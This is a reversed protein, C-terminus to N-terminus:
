RDGDCEARGVVAAVNDEKLSPLGMEKRVRNADDPTIHYIYVSYGIMTVPIFKQFWSFDYGPIHSPEIWGGRGDSASLPDGGLLFCVDIAYWGPLPGCSAVPLETHREKGNPGLAPTTFKIGTLRPDFPGCHALHLPTAEPHSDLWRKLLILDQGWSSDSKALIKWGNKPGGVLENFYSIEHPFYYMSSGVSWFLGIMVVVRSIKERALTIGVKSTWVFLFPLLPMCYRSHMGIGTQTSLITFLTLVPLLLYLENWWGSRYKANRFTLFTAFVILIWTGLPIKVLMALGHFYWWGGIQWTGLLYSFVGTEFDKKQLDLGAVFNAPLPVPIKALWTESFRNAGGDPIEDPSPIGTLTRTQFRFEGLPTGTGEFEYGANIVLISILILLIGKCAERLLLGGHRTSPSSIRLVFWFIIGLPYFFLLTFKSLEAIGLVLGAIFTMKWTPSKLWLWFLWAATVGLSAAHADPTLLSGHGLVYPCSSWLILATLGAANGYLQRAWLFCVFGGMLIFPICIWRGLIVFWVFEPGNAHMTDLGVAYEARNLPDCNYGTYCNDHPMLRMPLAAITRILPPNVRFLDYRSLELHSLGAPLHFVELHTPSHIYASWALLFTQVCLIFACAICTTRTNSFGTSITTKGDSITM